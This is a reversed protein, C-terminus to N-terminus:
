RGRHAVALLDYAVAAKEATDLSQVQRAGRVTIKMFWQSGMKRVGAYKKGSYVAAWIETAWSKDGLVWFHM